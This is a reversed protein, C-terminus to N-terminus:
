YIDVYIDEILSLMRTSMKALSLRRKPSILKILVSLKLGILILNTIIGINLFAAYNKNRIPM